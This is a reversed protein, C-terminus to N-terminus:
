LPFNCSSLCGVSLTLPATEEPTWLNSCPLFEASPTESCRSDAPCVWRERGPYRECFPACFRRPPIAKLLRAATFIHRYPPATSSWSSWRNDRRTASNFIECSYMSRILPPTYINVALIHQKMIFKEMVEASNFLLPLGRSSLYRSGFVQIVATEGM